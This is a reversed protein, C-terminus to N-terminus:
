WNEEECQQVRALCTQATFTGALESGEVKLLEEPPHQSTDAPATGSDNM